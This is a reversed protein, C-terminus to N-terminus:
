TSSKWNSRFLISQQSFILKGDKLMASLLVSTVVRKSMSRGPKEPTVESKTKKIEVKECMQYEAGREIFRVHLAKKWNSIQCTETWSPKREGALIDCDM